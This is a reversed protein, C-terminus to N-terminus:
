RRFRRSLALVLAACVLPPVAGYVAPLGYLFRVLPAFAGTPTAQQSPPVTILLGVYLSCVFLYGAAALVLDYRRDGRGRRHRRAVSLTPTVVPLVFLLGVLVFFSRSFTFTGGGVGSTGAILVVLALAFLLTIGLAVLASVAVYSRFLWSESARYAYPFAGVIGRYGDGDAM